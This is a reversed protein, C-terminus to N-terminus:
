VGSAWTYTHIYLKGAYNLLVAFKITCIIYFNNAKPELTIDQNRFIDHSNRRVADCFKALMTLCENKVCM